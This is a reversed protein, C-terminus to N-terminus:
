TGIGFCRDDRLLVVVSANADDTTIRPAHWATGAVGLGTGAGLTVGGITVEGRTTGAGADITAPVPAGNSIVRAVTMATSSLA